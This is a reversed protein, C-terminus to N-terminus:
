TSYFDSRRDGSDYNYVTPYAESPSEGTTENGLGFVASQDNHQNSETSQRQSGSRFASMLSRRSQVSKRDQWNFREILNKEFSPAYFALLWLMNDIYQGTFAAIIFFVVYGLLVGVVVICLLGCVCIYM